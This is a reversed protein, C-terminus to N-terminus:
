KLGGIRTLTDTWPWPTRYLPVYALRRALRGSDWLRGHEITSPKQARMHRGVEQAGRNRFSHPAPAVGRQRATLAPDLLRPKFNVENKARM